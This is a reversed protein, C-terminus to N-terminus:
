AAVMVRTSRPLLWTLLPGTMLTTVVAMVVLMTFMAPPIVGLSRGADLVILEMLARTNMLSALTMASRPPEGLARGVFFVPVIKGLVAAAIVLALWGWDSGALGLLNTHLGTYTFFIPLFLVLVLRGVQADWAAVV